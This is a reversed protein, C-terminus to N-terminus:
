NLEEVPIQKRELEAMFTDRKLIIEEYVDGNEKIKEDEYPAIQAQYFLYKAREIYSLMVVSLGCRRTFEHSIAELVGLVANFTTYNKGNNAIFSNIYSNLDEDPGEEEKLVSEIIRTTILFNLEGATSVTEPAAKL